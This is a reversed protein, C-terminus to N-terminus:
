ATKRAKKASAAGKAETQRNQLSATLAALLDGTEKPPEKRKPMEVPQGEQKARLLEEVAQQYGDAYKQHEFPGANVELLQRALQLEADKIAISELGLSPASRVEGQFFMTHFMLVGNYARIIIIHERSNMTARAIAYKSEQELAQLLLKYGKRGAPEPELYYSSEFLIPDVEEASVTCEIEFVKSSEPECAELEEKTVIVYKGDSFEYGKLTENRAVDENCANCWLKQNVRGKCKPHIMNFSIRGPRAAPSTKVPINVLGFAITTKIGAM